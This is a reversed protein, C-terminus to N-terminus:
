SNEPGERSGRGGGISVENPQSSKCVTSNDSLVCPSVPGQGVSCIGCPTSSLSRSLAIAAKSACLRCRFEPAGCSSVAPCDVERVSGAPCFSGASCKVQTQTTNCFHGGRLEGAKSAGEECYDHLKIVTVAVTTVPIAHKANLKERFTQTRAVRCLSPPSSGM